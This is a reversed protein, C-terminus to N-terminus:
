ASRQTRGRSRGRRGGTGPSRCRRHRTGRRDKNGRCNRRITETVVKTIVVEVQEPEAQCAALLGIALLLFIIVLVGSWSFKKYM